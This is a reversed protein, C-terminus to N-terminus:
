SIWRGAPAAAVLEAVFDHVGAAAPGPGAPRHPEARAAGAGRARGAAAPLAAPEGACPRLGAAQRHHGRVGRRVGRVALHPRRRPGVAGAPAGPDTRHPRLRQHVADHPLRAGGGAAGPRRARPQHAAGPWRLRVAVRRFRRAARRHSLGAGRQRGGARLGSLPGGDGTRLLPVPVHLEAGPVLGRHAPPRPHGGPRRRVGLAAGAAARHEVLVPGVPGRDGGGATRSATRLPRPAAPVLRHGPGTGAAGRGAAHVAPQRLAAGPRRSTRRRRGGRGAPLPPAGDAPATRRAAAAEPDHGPAACLAVAGTRPDLASTM